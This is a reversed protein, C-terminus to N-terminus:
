GGDRRDPDHFDSESLLIRPVGPPLFKTPDRNCSCWLIKELQANWRAICKLLTSPLDAHSLLGECHLLLANAWRFCHVYGDVAEHIMRDQPTTHRDDYPNEIGGPFEQYSTIIIIIHGNTKLRWFFARALEAQSLSHMSQQAGCARCTM